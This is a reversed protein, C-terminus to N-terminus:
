WLKDDEFLQHVNRTEGKWGSKGNGGKLMLISGACAKEWDENSIINKETYDFLPIRKGEVKGDLQKVLAVGM